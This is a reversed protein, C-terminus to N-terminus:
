NPSNNGSQETHQLYGVINLAIVGFVAALVFKIVLSEINFMAILITPIGIWVLLGIAVKM